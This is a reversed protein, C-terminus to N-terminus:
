MEEETQPSEATEEAPAQAVVVSAPRITRGKLAYGRQLVQLVTMPEAQDTPQQMMASHREPDFPKGEADIVALGFQELTRMLKEHVMEMGVLLPDDAPHNERAAVLGREMDDVVSLLSKMLGENAFEREQAREKQVRKQFNQYDARLRQLRALLDDREAVVAEADTAPAEASPAEIPEGDPGVIKVPVDEASKSKDKKKSM